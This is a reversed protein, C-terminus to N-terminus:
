KAVQTILKQLNQQSAAGPVFFTKSSASYPNKTIIFAPTGLLGLSQALKYNGRIEKIIDPSKMDKQLKKTKLGVSEAIKLIRAKNLAGQSKMLADHFKMYKGQKASALAAAAAFQSNAGFIPFEKFVVRLNKNKKILQDVVPVMQKCHICQYDFFEVLNVNGNKNGLVPSTKNFLTGANKSIAAQAKKLMGQQQQKQLNKSAKVLVEPNNIIYNSIIKEIAQTQAPTFNASDAANAFPMVCLLAVSM